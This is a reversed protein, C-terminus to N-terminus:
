LGSHEEHGGETVALMHKQHKMALREKAGTNRQLKLPKLEDILDRRGEFNGHLIV